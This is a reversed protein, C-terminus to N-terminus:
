ANRKAYFRVAFAACLALLGALAVTPLDSATKPLTSTGTTDTTTTTSNYSGTTGSTTTDTNNMTGTTTDAPPTTTTTTTDVPPTPTTMTTTPAGMNDPTTTTGTTGTSTGTGNNLDNTGTTSENTTGEVTGHEQYTGHQNPAAQQMNSGPNQLNNNTQGPKTEQSPGPAPTNLTSQAFLAPAATIALAAAFTLIQRKM